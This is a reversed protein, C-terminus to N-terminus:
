HLQLRVDLQLGDLQTREFSGLQLTGKLTELKNRVMDLAEPLLSRIDDQLYWQLWCLHVSPAPIRHHSIFQGLLWSWPEDPNLKRPNCGSARLSSQMTIRYLQMVSLQVQQAPLANGSLPMHPQIPAHMQGFHPMDAEHMWCRISIVGVLKGSDAHCQLTNDLLQPVVPLAHCWVRFKSSCM